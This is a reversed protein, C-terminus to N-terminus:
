SRGRLSDGKWSPGMLVKGQGPLDRGPGEGRWSPGKLVKRQGPLVWWSKGSHITLGNYIQISYQLVNCVHNHLARGLGNNLIM